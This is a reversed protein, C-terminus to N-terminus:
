SKNAQDWTLTVQVNEDWKSESLDGAAKVKITLTKTANPAWTGTLCHKIADGLASKDINTVTDQGNSVDYLIGQADGAGNTVSVDALKTSITGLNKVVVSVTVDNGPYLNSISWTLGTDDATVTAGATNNSQDDLGIEGQAGEAYTLAGDSMTMNMTATSVNTTVTLTENWYAYGAGLLGVSAILIITAWKKNKM